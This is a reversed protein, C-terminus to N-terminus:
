GWGRAMCGRRRWCSRCTHVGRRGLRCCLHCLLLLLYGQGGWRGLLWVRCGGRGDLYNWLLYDGGGEGGGCGGIHPQLRLRVLPVLHHQLGIPHGQQGLWGAHSLGSEVRDRAVHLRHDDALAAPGEAVVVADAGGFEADGAEDPLFSALAWWWADLLLLVM